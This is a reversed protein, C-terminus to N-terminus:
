LIEDQISQVTNVEISSEPRGGLFSRRARTITVAILNLGVIGGKLLGCIRLLFRSAIGRGLDIERLRRRRRLLLRDLGLKNQNGGGALRGARFAM